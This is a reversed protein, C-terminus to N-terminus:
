EHENILINERDKAKCLSTLKKKIQEIYTYIRLLNHNKLLTRTSMVHIDVKLTRLHDIIILEHMIISNNFIVHIKMVMYVM